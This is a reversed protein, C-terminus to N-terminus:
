EYKEKTKVPSILIRFFFLYDIKSWVKRKKRKKKSQFIFCFQFCETWKARKLLPVQIIEFSSSFFSSLRTQDSWFFYNPNWYNRIKTLHNSKKQKPKFDSVCEFYYYFSDEQGSQEKKICLPHQGFKLGCVCLFLWLILKM